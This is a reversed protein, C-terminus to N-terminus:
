APPERDDRPRIASLLKAAERAVDFEREVRQRGAAGMRARLDRDALVTQLARALPEPDGPHVLIGSGGDEVLEAVGAVRTAVVPVGCALAEMLVVPVGEAFSPLCFVDTDALIGRVEAQSLYGTFRVREAVGLEAARAELESRLHGDGVLVLEVDSRDLSAFADLLVTVGKVEALRGVFAIRRAPDRHVRVEYEEPAVGCHVIRLRDWHRPAAFIMTQSRCFRSICAVFRAHAVKEGVKWREPEFWIAPGHITFSFPIGALEAALLAVTCSSDAFHDHLHEISRKRLHGALIGAEAFYALQKALAVLGPSRLRWALGLVRLYALPARLFAGAHAAVLLAPSPPLLYTTRGKEERQEAGVDHRADPRRVAFTQVEVGLLRLAQVERQVFTDTARPYEGTLYAIRLDM